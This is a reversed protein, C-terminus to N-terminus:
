RLIRDAWCAQESALLREARRRRTALGLAVLGLSGLTTTLPEPVVTARVIGSFVSGDTDIFQGSFVFDGRDNLDFGDIRNLTSGQIRDGTALLTQDFTLLEARGGNADQLGALFLVQGQNNITTSSEFFFFLPLVIDEFVDEIAILQENLSFIRPSGASSFGDNFSIDSAYVIDGGNNISSAGPFIISEGQVFSDTRDVLVQASTGDINVKSIGLTPFPFKPNLNTKTVFVIEGNDNVFSSSEFGRIETILGTQGNKQIPDLESIILRDDNLDFVGKLTDFVGRTDEFSSIVVVKGKNNISGTGRSILKRGGVIDGSKALLKNPTFIGFPVIRDVAFDFPIEADFIVEGRNNISPRSQSIDVVQIGGITDGDTAVFEYAYNVAWAWHPM